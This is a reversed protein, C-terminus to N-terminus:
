ARCRRLFLALASALGLLLMSSPEPIARVEFNDMRIHETASGAISTDFAGVATINGSLPLTTATGMSLSSGPTFNLTNWTATGASALTLNNSWVNSTSSNFVSNSVFWDTGVQFAFRINQNTLTNRLDFQFSDLLSVDFPTLAATWWIVPSGTNLDGRHFLYGFGTGDGSDDGGGSALSGIIPAVTDTTSATNYATATAGFHSQWSVGNLAGNVGSGTNFTQSYVITQANALHPIALALCLSFLLPALPHITKM